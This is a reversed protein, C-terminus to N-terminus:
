KEDAICNNNDGDNASSHWPEFSLPHHLQQATCSFKLNSMVSSSAPIDTCSNTQTFSATLSQRSTLYDNIFLSSSSSSSSIHERRVRKFSSHSSSQSMCSQSSSDDDSSDESGCIPNARCVGPTDCQQEGIFHNEENDSLCQISRKIGSSRFISLPRQRLPYRISHNVISDEDDDDESFTSLEEDTMFSSTICQRSSFDEGKTDQQVDEAVRFVGNLDNIAFITTPSYSTTSSSLEMVAAPKRCDEGDDAYVSFLPTTAKMMKNSNYVPSTPFYNM